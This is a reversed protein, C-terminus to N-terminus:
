ELDDEDGARGGDPRGVGFHAGQPDRLLAFRGAYPVDFPEELVCGGLEVARRASADVDEVAICPFWRAEGGSLATPMKMMGGVQNWGMMWVTYPMERRLDAQVADLKGVRFPQWGILRSYFDIAGDEDPTRLENWLVTGSSM